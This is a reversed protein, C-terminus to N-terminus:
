VPVFGRRCLEARILPLVRGDPRHAYTAALRELGDVSWETLDTDPNDTLDPDPEDHIESPPNCNGRCFPGGTCPHAGRFGLATLLTNSYVRGCRTDNITYM